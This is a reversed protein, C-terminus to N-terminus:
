HNTARRLRSATILLEPTHKARRENVALMENGGDLWKQFTKRSREFTGALLSLAM